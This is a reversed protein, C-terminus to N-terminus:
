APADGIVRDKELRDALAKSLVVLEGRFKRLTELIFGIELQREHVLVYDNPTQDDGPYAGAPDEFLDIGAIILRDPALAVATAIMTAGNTPRIGDWDRNDLIGLRQLTVFRMKPCLPNFIQHTVLHAEARPTQLAFIPGRLTFLTRKQGTFVVDPRCLRGRKLWRHNVRFLADYKVKDLAPDESSPGNGLCLITRPNGLEAKFEELSEIRRARMALIPRWRPHDLRSAINKQLLRRAPPRRSMLVNLHAILDGWRTSEALDETTLDAVALGEARLSEAAARDKPVIWDAMALLSKKPRNRAIEPIGIAAIGIGSLYAQKVLM